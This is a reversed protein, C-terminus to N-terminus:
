AAGRIEELEADTPRKRFWSRYRKQRAKGSKGLLTYGKHPTVVPDPEGYAHYRHSSWLYDAPKECFKARVPNLEIYRFCAKLYRENDVLSTRYRSEWLPGTREHVRNFHKIYRGNVSQMTKPLSIEDGPTVLLHVHNGM